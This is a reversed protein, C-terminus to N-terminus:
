PSGSMSVETTFHLPKRIWWLSCQPVCLILNPSSGIRLSATIRSLDHVALMVRM